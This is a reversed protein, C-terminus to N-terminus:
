WRVNTFSWHLDIMTISTGPVKWRHLVFKEHCLDFPQWPSMNSTITWPPGLLSCVLCQIVIVMIKFLCQLRLWLQLFSFFLFRYNITSTILLPNLMWAILHFFAAWQNLKSNKRMVCTQRLHLLGSGMFTQRWTWMYIISTNHREEMWLMQFIGSPRIWYIYIYIVYQYLLRLM